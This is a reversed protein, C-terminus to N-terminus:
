TPSIHILQQKLWLSCVRRMLSSVSQNKQDYCVTWHDLCLGRLNLPSILRRSFVSTLSSDTHPLCVDNAAARDTTPEEKTEAPLAGRLVKVVYLSASCPCKLM